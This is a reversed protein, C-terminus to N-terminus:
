LLVFLCVFSAKLSGWLSEYCRIQSFCSKRKVLLNGVVTKSLNTQQTWDKSTGAKNGHAQTSQVESLGVSCYADTEESFEAVRRVEPM